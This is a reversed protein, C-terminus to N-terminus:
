HRRRELSFLGLERLRDGWPLHELERVVETARRQVWELLEMVKKHQPGWFQICYELHRSMLASCLYRIVEGSRSIVSRRICKLVCNAKQAALACQQSMSFREDISVELYKGGPSIELWEGGLKYRHKPNDQGLLLIECKAKSFKMFNAHAWRELDRQIIDRGELLDTAGSLKSFM